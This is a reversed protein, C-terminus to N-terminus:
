PPSPFEWFLLVIQPFLNKQQPHLVELRRHSRVNNVCGWPSPLHTSCAQKPASSPNWVDEPLRFVNDKRVAQWKEQRALYPYNISSSSSDLQETTDLEAVGHVTAWWAGRDVPNGLCSYQLPNGNGGGPSRVQPELRFTKPFATRGRPVKWPQLWWRCHNQLGLFFTEWQKWQKGM